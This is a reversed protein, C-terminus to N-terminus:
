RSDSGEPLYEIHSICGWFWKEQIFERVKIGGAKRIGKISSINDSATWIWYKNSPIASEMVRGLQAPYIGLGRFRPATLCSIISYSGETVFPYRGKIKKAPVIWQVHSLAEEVYALLIYTNLSGYRLRLYAVAARSQLRRVERLQNGKLGRLPLIKTGVKVKPTVIDSIENKKLVFVENRTRSGGVITM